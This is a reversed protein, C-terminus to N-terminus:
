NLWKNLDSFRGVLNAQIGSFAPFNRCTGSICKIGPRNQGFRAHVYTAPTIFYKIGGGFFHEQKDADKGQREYTFDLSVYPSWKYSLSLETENWEQHGLLDDDESRFLFLGTIAVSHNRFIAQEVAMEMHADQLYLKSSDIEVERRLGGSLQAQGHGDGWTAEGGATPSFVERNEKGQGNNWNRFYGFNIFALFELPGVEGFNYDLRTRFGQVSTNNGIQARIWELTPAQNYALTYPEDDVRRAALEFDDYHKFEALITLDELLQLTSTAYLAVGGEFGGWLEQTGRLYEGGEVTQLFNVEAAISLRDDWLDNVELGGGFVLQHGAQNDLKSMTSRLVTPIFVSHVGVMIKEHVTIALRGGVVPDAEWQGNWGTPADVDLYNFQGGVLTLEVPGNHLVFKGGRIANDQSLEGVKVVNLAIGRGFSAYFDGLTLDFEPRAWILYIRELAFQDDYRRGQERKSASCISSAPDACPERSLYSGAFLNLDMRAGLRFDGHSLNADLTNFFHHYREDETRTDENDFRYTYQFTNTADLTFEQGKISFDWATAPRPLLVLVALALAASIKLKM